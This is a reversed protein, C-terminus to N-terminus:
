VFKLRLQRSRKNEASTMFIVAMPITKLYPKAILVPEFIDDSFGAENKFSLM